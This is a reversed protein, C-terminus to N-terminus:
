FPRPGERGFRKCFELLLGDKKCDLFSCAFKSLWASFVHFMLPVCSTMKPVYERSSARVVDSLSPSTPLGLPSERPLSAVAARPM